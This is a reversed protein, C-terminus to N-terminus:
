EMIVNMIDNIFNSLYGGSMLNTLATGVKNLTNGNMYDLAAVSPFCIRNLTQVTSYGLNNLGPPTSGASM